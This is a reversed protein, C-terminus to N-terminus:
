AANRLKPHCALESISESNSPFMFNSRTDRSARERIESM